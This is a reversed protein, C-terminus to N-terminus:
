SAYQDAAIQALVLDMSQQLHSESGWAKRIDSPNLIRVYGTLRNKQLKWGDIEVQNSWFVKGGLTAVEVNPNKVAKFLADLYKSEFIVTFKEALTMTNARYLRKPFQHNTVFHAIADAVAQNDTLELHDLPMVILDQMEPLWVSQRSVVGDNLDNFLSNTSSWSKIGAVGGVAISPPFRELKNQLYDSQTLHLIVPHIKKLFKPLATQHLDALPTGRNPVGLLVCANTKQAIEPEQNLFHRIVIGGTSHGVFDAQEFAYQDVVSHLARIADSLNEFSLGVDVPIVQQYHSQLARALFQMSSCDSRFGHVLFLVSQM